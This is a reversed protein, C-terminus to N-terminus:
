LVCMRITCTFGHLFPFKRWFIIRGFVPHKAGSVAIKSFHSFLIGSSLVTSNGAAFAWEPVSFQFLGRLVCLTCQIMFVVLPMNGWQNLPTHSVIYPFCNRFFSIKANFSNMPTFFMFLRVGYTSPWHSFYVLFMNLAFIM